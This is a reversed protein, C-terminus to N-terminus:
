PTVNVTVVKTLGSANVTFTNTGAADASVVFRAQHNIDTPPITQTPLYNPDRFVTLGASINSVSFDSAISLGAEDVVSVIVGRTLGQPMFLVTPNAQIFTAKGSNNTPDGSCAWIGALLGFLVSCRTWRQM